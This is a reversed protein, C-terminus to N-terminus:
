RNNSTKVRWACGGDQCEKCAAGDCKACGQYLTTTSVSAGGYGSELANDSFVNMWSCSEGAGNDPWDLFYGKDGTQRFRNHAVVNRNAFNRVKIPDGCVRLASNHVVVNDSAANMYVAHLFREDGAKNLLNVFHNNQVRNHDTGLGVGSMGINLHHFAAPRNGISAIVCGYVLNHGASHHLTFAATSYRRVHLYYFRVNEVQGHFFRCNAGSKKAACADHGDFIPRGGKKSLESWRMGFRYAGPMFSITYDPSSFTWEVAEEYARGDAVVRVEVNRDLGSPYDKVLRAQAGELSALPHQEDGAATDDGGHAVWLARPANKSPGLPPAAPQASPPDLDGVGEQALAQEDDEASDTTDEVASSCAISALAVALLVSLARM